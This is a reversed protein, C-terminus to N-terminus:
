ITAILLVTLLYPLWRFGTVSYSIILVTLSFGFFLIVHLILSPLKIDVLFVFHIHLSLSM